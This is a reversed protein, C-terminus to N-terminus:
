LTYLTNPDCRGEEREGGNSGKNRGGKGELKM